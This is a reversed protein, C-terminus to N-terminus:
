VAVALHSGAVAIRCMVAFDPVPGGSMEACPRLPETTVHTILQHVSRVGHEDVSILDEHLKENPRLGTIVIELPPDHQAAFREAV